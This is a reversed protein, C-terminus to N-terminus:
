NKNEILQLLSDFEINTMDRINTKCKSKMINNIEIKQSLKYIRKCTSIFRNIKEDKSGYKIDSTKIIEKIFILNDNSLDKKNNINNDIFKKGLESYSEFELFKAKKNKNFINFYENENETESSSSSSLTKNDVLKNLIDLIKILKDDDIKNLLIGRAWSLQSEVYNNYEEEMIKIKNTIKENKGKYIKKVGNIIVIKGIPLKEIKNKITKLRINIDKYKNSLEDFKLNQSKINIDINDLITDITNYKNNLSKSVIDKLEKLCRINNDKFFSNLIDLQYKYYNNEEKLEYYKDEFIDFDIFLLEDYIYKDKNIITNLKGLQDKLLRNEEQLLQNKEYLDNNDNIIDVFRNEINKYKDSLDNFNNNLKNYTSRNICNLHIMNETIKYNPKSINKELM